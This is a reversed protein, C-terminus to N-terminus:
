EWGASAGSEPRAQQDFAAILQLTPEAKMQIVM